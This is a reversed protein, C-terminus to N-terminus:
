RSRFFLAREPPAAGDRYAVARPNIQALSRRPSFDYARDLHWGLRSLADTTIEPLDIFVEKYYSGQVVLGITGGRTTVQAVQALSAAYGHLYQALWKVYYTASAKSPHHRVAGLTRRATSSTEPGLATEVRPVTTTGILQRRLASQETVNLGLVSLEVRTAVAYDIRTCYPPSGLVLDPAVGHEILRTSTGLEVSSTINNTVAAASTAAEHIESVMSEWSLRAPPSNRRPRIWTPNSSRWAQAARKVVEFLASIWFASTTTVEKVDAESLRPSGILSAQLARVRGVSCDDFWELLPDDADVRVCLAKMSRVDYARERIRTAAEDTLLQARAIVVMAPNLDIGLGQDVSPSRALLQPQTSRQLQSLPKTRIVDSGCPAGM